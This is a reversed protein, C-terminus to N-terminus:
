FGYLGFCDSVTTSSRGVEAQLGRSSLPASELRKSSEHQHGVPVRSEVRLELGLTHARRAVQQRANGKGGRAEDIIETTTGAVACLQQELAKRVCPEEAAVRGVGHKRMRADTSGASVEELLVDRIPRGLLRRIQDEGVGRQLEQGFM